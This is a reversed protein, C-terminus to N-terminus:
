NNKKILFIITFLCYNPFKMLNFQQTEEVNWNYENANNLQNLIQLSFCKCERRDNANQNWSLETLFVNETTHTKISNTTPATYQLDNSIIVTSHQKALRGKNRWRNNDTVKLHNEKSVAISCLIALSQYLLFITIINMDSPIPAGFVFVLFETTKTRLRVIGVSLGGSTTSTLALKTAAGYSLRNTAPKGGRRGPNSGPDPWTLNTSSL